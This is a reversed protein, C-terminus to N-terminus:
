ENVMVKKGNVIQFGKGGDAPRGQLDFRIEIDGNDQEILEIGNETGEDLRFRAPASAASTEFFGRYAPVSFAVVAHLFMDTNFYYVSESSYEAATPDLQFTAYAGNLTWAGGNFQAPNLASAAKVDANSATLTMVSVDEGTKKFVAPQGAPVNYATSFSLTGTTGQMSVGSLTYFQIDQNSAVAFPLCVTGWHAGVPLTREYTATTARFPTENIYAADDYLVFDSCVGDVVVNQGALNADNTFILANRNAAYLADTVFTPLSGEAEISSLTANGIVVYSSQLAVEAGADDPQGNDLIVGSAYVPYVGEALDTYTVPLNLVVGETAQYQANSGSNCVLRYAQYGSHTAEALTAEGIELDSQSIAGSTLTGLSLGAPLELDMQFASWKQDGQIMIPLTGSGGELTVPQVHLYDAALLTQCCAALGIISYTLIRSDMKIIPIIIQM